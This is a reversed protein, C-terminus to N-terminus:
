APFRDNCMVSSRCPLVQVVQMGPVDFVKDLFQLQPIEVTLVVTSILRLTVVPIVVVKIFQLQLAVYSYRQDMGAMIGFMQSWAVVSLFVARPSLYWYFWGLVHWQRQRRRARGCSSNSSTRPTRRKRRKKRKRQRPPLLIWRRWAETEAGTLPLDASVRRNLELM